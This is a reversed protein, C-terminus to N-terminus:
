WVVNIFRWDSMVSRYCYVCKLAKTAPQFVYSNCFRCHARGYLLNCFRCHAKCYLLVTQENEEGQPRRRMFQRANSFSWWPLLLLFVNQKIRTRFAIWEEAVPECSFKERKSMVGDFSFFFFAKNWSIQSFISWMKWWRGSVFTALVCSLRLCDQTELGVYTNTYTRPRNPHTVTICNLM